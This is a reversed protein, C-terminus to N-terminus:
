ADPEKEIEEINDLYILGKEALRGRMDYIDIGLEGNLFRARNKREKEIRRNAAEAVRIAEKRSVM